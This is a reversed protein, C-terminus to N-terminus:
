EASNSWGVYACLQQRIAQALAGAFSRPSAGVAINLRSGCNSNCVSITPVGWIGASCYANQLVADGWRDGPKGYEGLDAVGLPQTAKPDSWKRHLGWKVLAFPILNTWFRIRPLEMSLPSWKLGFQPGRQEAMRARLQEIVAPMTTADAEEVRVRVQGILMSAHAPPSQPPLYRRLNVINTMSVPVGPTVGLVTRVGLYTAAMLVLSPTCRDRMARQALEDWSGAPFKLIPSLGAPDAVTARPIAFPAPHRALQKRDEAIMKLNAERQEVSVASDLLAITRRCLPGDVNPVGDDAHFHQAVSEILLRAATADALRHDIRFCLTDNVPGRFVALSAAATVPRRALQEFAPTPDEGCPIIEFLQDREARPIPSWYPKWFTEVFRHSWMPEDSLAALFARQLREADVHGAFELLCDIDCRYHPTM